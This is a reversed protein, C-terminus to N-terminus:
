KELYERQTYIFIFVQQTVFPIWEQSRFTESKLTMIRM